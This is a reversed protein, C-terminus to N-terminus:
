LTEIGEVGLLACCVEIAEDEALDMDLNSEGGYRVDHLCISGKSVDLDRMSMRGGKTITLKDM